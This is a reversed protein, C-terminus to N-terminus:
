SKGRTHFRLRHNTNVELRPYGLLIRLYPLTDLRPVNCIGLRGLTVVGPRRKADRGREDDRFERGDIARERCSQTAHRKKQAKNLPPSTPNRVSSEADSEKCSVRRKTGHKGRMAVGAGKDGCPEGWFPHQKALHIDQVKKSMLIAECGSQQELAKSANSGDEDDSCM